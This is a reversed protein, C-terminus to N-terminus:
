RQARALVDGIVAAAYDVDQDSLNPHTLFMLSTEGLEQAVPLRKAPRFDGADFARELYVEPCTGQFAPVSRATIEAIIRDRSWDTRLAEPVVYAYLRYFANRDSSCCTPTRVAGAQKLTDILVNANHSRRATWLPMRGLQIRGIAAQVEPMRWNTGFSDHLWRFGPPQNEAYVAAFSKGHDKYSWINEWLRRDNTTAMGGEGGTTMIKDQCFSWAGVDGFSGVSRGRHRAGHAQACDEIISLDYTKAVDCLGTMDCPWGGLHVPIIAKTARTVVRSVTAPTMNGSDPDVDAFVPRAGANIVSSVSAIFTRPTVIVEDGVGIRLARLGVDLAVTGNALAVAHSSGSWAAFESEFHRGETGTWYNVQNSLIIRAAAAAEEQTFSPWTPLQKIFM